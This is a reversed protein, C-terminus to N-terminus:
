AGLYFYLAVWVVPAVVYLWVVITIIWPTHAGKRTLAELTETPCIVFWIFVCTAWVVASVAFTDVYLQAYYILETM